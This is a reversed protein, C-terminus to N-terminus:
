SSNWIKDCHYPWSFRDPHCRGNRKQTFTGSVYSTGAPLQDAVVIKQNTNGTNSVMSIFRVTENKKATIEESSFFYADDTSSSSNPTVKKSISFNPAPTPTPAVPTATVPNGCSKLIAWQFNGNADLKVFADITTSRFSVSPKRAYFATSGGYILNSDGLDQRGATLANTAILKGSVYVNNSSDVYGSVVNSMDSRVGYKSYLDGVDGTNASTIASTSYTGGCVVDNTCDQAKTFNMPIIVAMLLTLIGVAFAIQKNSLFYKIYTYM